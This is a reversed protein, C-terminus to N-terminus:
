EVTEPLAPVDLSVPKKKPLKKPKSDPDLSTDSQILAEMEAMFEVPNIREYCRPNETAVKVFGEQLLVAFLFSTNNNSRGVFLKRLIYSTILKDSPVQDSAHKIANLSVWEHSFYGSSSNAHIRFLIEGDDICGIHYTLTASESLNPCTAVKIIRVPRVPTSTDPKTENANM